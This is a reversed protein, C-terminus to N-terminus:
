LPLICFYLNYVIQLYGGPLDQAFRGKLIIVWPHPSLDIDTTYKYHCFISICIDKYFICFYLDYGIQLHGGLWDQAFSEMNIIDWPHHRHDRTHYPEPQLEPRGTKLFTSPSVLNRRTTPPLVTQSIVSEVVSGPPQICLPLPFFEGEDGSAPGLTLNPRVPHVYASSLPAQFSPSM